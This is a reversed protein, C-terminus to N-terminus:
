KPDGKTPYPMSPTEASYNRPPAPRYNPDNRVVFNTGEMFDPIGNENEDLGMQRLLAAMAAPNYQNELNKRRTVNKQAVELVKGSTEIMSAKNEARAQVQALIQNNRIGDDVYFYLGLLIAHIFALVVVVIVVTLEAATSDVGKINAVAALVGVGVISVISLMVGIIAINKQENNAYARVFLKQNLILPVVGALFVLLGYFWIGTVWYVTIGSGIDLVSFILDAAIIAAYLASNSPKKVPNVVERELDSIM